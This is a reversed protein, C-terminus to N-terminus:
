GSSLGTSVCSTPPSLAGSHPVLPERTSSALVPKNQADCPWAAFSVPPEVAVIERLTLPLGPDFPRRGRASGPSPTSGTFTARFTGPRFLPQTLPTSVPRSNEDGSRATFNVPLDRFDILLLTELWFFEMLIM